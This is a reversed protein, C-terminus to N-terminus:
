QPIRPRVVPIKMTRGAYEHAGFEDILAVARIEQALFLVARDGAHFIPETREPEAILLRGREPADAMQVQDPYNRPTHFVEDYVASPVRIPPEYLEWLYPVLGVHACLSWFSTDIVAPPSAVPIARM